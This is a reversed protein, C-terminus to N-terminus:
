LKGPPLVPNVNRPFYLKFGPALPNFFTYRVRFLDDALELPKGLVGEARAVNFPIGPGYSSYWIRWRGDEIPEAPCTFSQVKGRGSKDDSALVVGRKEWASPPCPRPTPTEAASALGGLGLAAASRAATTLFRRRDVHAMKLVEEFVQPRRRLIEFSGSGRSASAGVM